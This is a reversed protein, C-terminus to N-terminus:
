EGVLARAKISKASIDQAKVKAVLRFVFSQISRCSVIVSLECLNM